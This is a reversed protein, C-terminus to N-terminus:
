RIRYTLFAGVTAQNRSGRQRIRPSDAAEGILRDYGAIAVLTVRRSLPAVLNGSLGASELGSAPRYVALGSRVSQGGDVGYYARNFGKSAWTVSPGAGFLVPGAATRRLPTSYAAGLSAVQGGHGGAVDQALAAKFTVPGRGYALFGGLEVSPSVGGLGRLAARNDRERQGFRFRGQAGASWGGSRLPAYSAELGSLVFDDGHRVILAPIPRIRYDSSGRFDPTLIAGAGLGVTWGTPGGSLGPQAHAVTATLAM